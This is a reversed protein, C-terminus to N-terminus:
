SPSKLLKKLYELANEKISESVELANEKADDTVQSNPPPYKKYPNLSWCYDCIEPTVRDIVEEKAYKRRCDIFGKKASPQHYVCQQGGVKSTATQLANGLERYTAESNVGHELPTEEEVQSEPSEPGKEIAGEAQEQPYSPGVLAKSIFQAILEKLVDSAIADSGRIVKAAEIFKRHEEEELRCSVVITGM